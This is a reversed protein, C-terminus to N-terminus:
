APTFLPDLLLLVSWGPNLVMNEMPFPALDESLLDFFSFGVTPAWSSKKSISPNRGVPGRGRVGEVGRDFGDAGEVRRLCLPWSRLSDSSVNLDEADDCPFGRLLKEPNPSALSSDRALLVGDCRM